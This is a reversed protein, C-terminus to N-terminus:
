KRGLSEDSVTLKKRGKARRAALVRRGNATSMRERFGHKHRRRTNSPQYTRKMDKSNKIRSNKPRCFYVKKQNWCVGTSIKKEPNRRLMGKYSFLKITYIIISIQDHTQLKYTFRLFDSHYLPTFFTFIIYDILQSFDGRKEAKLSPRSIRNQRLNEFFRRFEVSSSARFLSFVAWFGPRLLTSFM